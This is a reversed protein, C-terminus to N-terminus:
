TNWRLIADPYRSFVIDCQIYFSTFNLKDIVSCQLPKIDVVMRLSIKYNEFQIMLTRHVNTPINQKSASDPTIEIHHM